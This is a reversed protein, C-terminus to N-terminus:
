VFYYGNFDTCDAVTLVTDEDLIMGYCNDYGEVNHWGLKVMYWPRHRLETFVYWSSRRDADTSYKDLGDSFDRYKAYRHACQTM